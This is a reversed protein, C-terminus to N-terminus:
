VFNEAFIDGAGVLNGLDLRKLLAMNPHEDTM